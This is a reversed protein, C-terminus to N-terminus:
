SLPAYTMIKKMDKPIKGVVESVNASIVNSMILCIYCITIPLQM